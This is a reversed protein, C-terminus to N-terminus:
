SVSENQIEEAFANLALIAYGAIDIMTDILEKRAAYDDPNISREVIRPLRNAKRGVGEYYTRLIKQNLPITNDDGGYMLTKESMMNLISNAVLESRYHFETCNILRDNCDRLIDSSTKFFNIQPKTEM